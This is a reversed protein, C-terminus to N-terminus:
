DFTLWVSRKSTTSTTCFRRSGCSRIRKQQKVYGSWRVRRTKGARHGPRTKSDCTGKALGRGEMREADPQGANNPSKEPVVPRDSKGPGNTM